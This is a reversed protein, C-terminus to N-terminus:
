LIHLRWPAGQNCGTAVSPLNRPGHNVFDLSSRQRWSGGSALRLAHYPVGHLLAERPTMSRADELSSPFPCPQRTSTRARARVYALPGPLLPRAPHGVGRLSLLDDPGRPRAAPSRRLLGERARARSLSAPPRSPWGTSHSAVSPGPEPRPADDVETRARARVYARYRVAAADNLPLTRVGFLCHAPVPSV